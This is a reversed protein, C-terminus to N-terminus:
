YNMRTQYKLIDRLKKFDLKKARRQAVEWLGNRKNLRNDAIAWLPQHRKRDRAVLVRLCSEVMWGQVAQRFIEPVVPTEGISTLTGNYVIRVKDFTKCTSSFFINGNESNFYYVNTENIIKDPNYIDTGETVSFDQAEADGRKSSALERATYGKDNRIPRYNRKWHIEHQNSINGNSDVNYGYAERLNFCGNPIAMSLNEYPFDVEKDIIHFVADLSLETLAQQAQDKYWGESFTKSDEDGVFMKVNAMIDNITVLSSYDM